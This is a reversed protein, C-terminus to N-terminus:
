QKFSILEEEPLKLASLVGYFVAGTDIGIKDDFPSKMFSIPTHGYIVKQPINLKQNIFDERIWIIDNLVQDELPKKPNIGAHAFVYKDSIIIHQLSIFFQFHEPPMKKINGKYSKVTKTGGNHKWLGYCSPDKIAELMMYEHNGLLFICNYKEKLELLYDIVKKSDKGRDIYDGLFIFEDDETPSIKNILGVLLDYEGHIDSIVYTSM